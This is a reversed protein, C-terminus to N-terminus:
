VVGRLFGAAYSIFRVLALPLFAIAALGHDNLGQFLVPLGDVVLFAVLLLTLAWGGAPVFPAAVVLPVLVLGGLCYLTNGPNHLGHKRVLRGQGVGYGFQQRLWPGISARHHHRAKAKPVFVAEFGAGEARILLDLDEGTPLGADFGDLDDLLKRTYATCWSPARAPARHFHLETRSGEFREVLSRAGAAEVRGTAIATKDKLAPLLAALFGKELKIDADVFLVVNGSTEAIGRNRARAIGRTEEVVVRAGHEAARERTGDTSGGDVVVVEAPPPEQAALSELTAAVTAANDLTLVVASVEM